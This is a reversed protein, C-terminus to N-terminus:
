RKQGANKHAHAHGYDRCGGELGDTGQEAGALVNSKNGYEEGYASKSHKKGGRRQGEDVFDPSPSAEKKDGADDAEGQASGEPEQQLFVAGRLRGFFGRRGIHAEPREYPREKGQM